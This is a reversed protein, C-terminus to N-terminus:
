LGLRELAPHKLVAAVERWADLAGPLELDPGFGFDLYVKIAGLRKTQTGLMAREHWQAMRNMAFTMMSKGLGRNKWAERIAVWHIRGFDLGKHRREYWASITGVSLGKDTVLFFCRWPVAQRDMGFSNQFEEDGIRAFPEADRWVDTWLSDEDPQMPRMRFGNPLPHQPIDRMHLRVMEVPIGAPGPQPRRAPLRVAPTEAPAPPPAFLAAVTQRARRRRRDRTVVGFPARHVHRIFDEEPWPHDAYCWVTAGCVFPADMGRFEAEIARAQVEEGVPGAAMGDICPYGFETVLVPKDGCRRHLAALHEQWHKTSARFDYDPNGAMARGSWSPYGNVCIVDDAEFSPAQRWRNSVHVALRTPDLERALRVLEANGERVDALTEDTENSVSWFVVSSHNGDRRVMQTLQRRAAALRAQALDPGEAQGSWWYLPVEAMALLGLEDCLDLEGPHHPYHCLRVFNCGMDKMAVLDARAAALDSCMGARPSDEHRNFGALRIPQGNLLLAAGRTEVRRFGLRLDHRDAEQEGVRLRIRTPYLAPRQPSWPEVGTVTGKLHAAESAGAALAIPGATLRQRVEGGADLVEAVVHAEVAEPRENRLAVELVVEGNAGAPAATAAVHEIYALDSSRLTVERLIGGYPRWGRFRGPVADPRRSNDVRVAIVNPGDARLLTHIPLDFRLFGDPHEGAAQGNVWVHTHYNAGEFRLVVRRGRWSEPLAVRRQFWGAGEYGALGPSCDDFCCPVRVERWLSADWDARGWGAREGENYPDVCFRWLGSLEIVNDEM